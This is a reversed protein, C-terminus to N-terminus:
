AFFSSLKMAQSLDGDVKLKGQMYAMMPALEGNLMTTLADASVRFTTESDAATNSVQMPTECGAVFIVGTEGLDFKVNFGIPDRDEVLTRVRNTLEDLMAQTEKLIQRVCQFMLQATFTRKNLLTPSRAVPAGPISVDCRCNSLMDGPKAATM